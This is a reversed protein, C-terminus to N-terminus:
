EPSWRYAYGGPPNYNWSMGTGSWYVAVYDAHGDLFGIVNLCDNYQVIGARRAHWSFGEVAPWECVLVTKSAQPLTLVKRDKLSLDKGGADKNGSINLYYSNNDYVDYTHLPNPFGNEPWGVDAPCKYIARHASYKEIWEPYWWWSNDGMARGNPATGQVQLPPLRGQNDNAYLRLALGIGRQNTMCRVREAQEVAKDLSPTLLALLVVIITIVVLLEILTFGEHCGVARRLRLRLGAVPPITVVVLLEILSFPPKAPPM